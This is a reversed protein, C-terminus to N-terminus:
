VRNFLGVFLILLRNGINLLKLFPAASLIDAAKKQKKIKKELFNKTEFNSLFHCKNM